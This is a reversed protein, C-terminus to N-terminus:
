GGGDPEDRGVSTIPVVRINHHRTCLLQHDGLRVGVENSVLTEPGLTGEQPNLISSVFIKADLLFAVGRVIGVTAYVDALTLTRRFPWGDGNPGGYLPHLFM